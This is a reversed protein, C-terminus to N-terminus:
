VHYVIRTKIMKEHEFTRIMKQPGVSSKFVAGFIIKLVVSFITAILSVTKYAIPPLFVQFSRGNLAIYVPM